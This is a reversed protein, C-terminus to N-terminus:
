VGITIATSTNWLEDSPNFGEILIEMLQQAQDIRLSADARLRRM